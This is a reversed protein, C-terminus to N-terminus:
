TFRGATENAGTSYMFNGEFARAEVANHQAKDYLDFYDGRAGPNMGWGLHSSAYAERDNFAAMYSALQRADFGDGSVDVVYDDRVTLRIPSRRDTKFARNPACP